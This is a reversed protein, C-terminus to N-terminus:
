SPAGARIEELRAADKADDYDVTACTPAFTIDPSGCRPCADGEITRASFGCDDCFHAFVVSM